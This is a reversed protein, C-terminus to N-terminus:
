VIHEEKTTSTTGSYKNLVAETTNNSVFAVPTQNKLGCHSWVKVLVVQISEDQM